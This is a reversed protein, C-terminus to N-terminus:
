ATTDDIRGKAELYKARAHHAELRDLQPDAEPCHRTVAAVADSFERMAIAAAKAMKGVRRLRRRLLFRSWKARLAQYAEGISGPPYNVERGRV